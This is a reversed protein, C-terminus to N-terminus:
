RGHEVARKIITNIASVLEEAEEKNQIEWLYEIDHYWEGSKIKDSTPAFFDDDIGIEAKHGRLIAVAQEFTM